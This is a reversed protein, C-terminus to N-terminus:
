GDAFADLAKTPRKESRQVGDAPELMHPAANPIPCRQASIEKRRKCPAPMRLRRRM